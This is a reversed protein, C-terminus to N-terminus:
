YYDDIINGRCQYGQKGVKGKISKGCVACEPLSNIPSFVIMTIIVDKKDLQFFILAEICSLPRFLCCQIVITKVLQRQQFNEKESYAKHGVSFNM